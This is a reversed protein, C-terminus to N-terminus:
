FRPPGRRGVSRRLYPRQVLNKQTEYAPTLSEVQERQGAPGFILISAGLCILDGWQNRLPGVVATLLPPMVVSPAHVEYVDDPPPRMILQRGYFLATDPRGAAYPEGSKPYRRYFRAPDEVLKLPYGGVTAPPKIILVDDDLILIEEGAETDKTWFDKLEELELDLPMTLQYYKNISSEVEADTMQGQTLRGTIKRVKQRLGELTWIVM